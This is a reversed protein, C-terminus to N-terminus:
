YGYLFQGIVTCQLIACINFSTVSYACIGLINLYFIFKNINRKNFCPCRGQLTYIELIKSSKTIFFYAQFNTMQSLNRAFKPTYFHAHISLTKVVFRSRKVQGFNLYLPFSCLKCIVREITPM